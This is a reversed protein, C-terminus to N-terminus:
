GYYRGIAQLQSFVDHGLFLVVLAAGAVPIWRRGAGRVALTVMAGLLPLATLLYRPEGFAGNHEIVDSDFSSVAITLLVGAVIAGYSVLEPLRRRLARRRLVLERCCLAAVAVAVVLAVSDVWNPFTIDMWGYLGVSRDFWISRWTSIGPFYHTMGPLRPLYLEWAYSLKEWISGGSSSTGSVYGFLPHGTLMNRLGYLVG